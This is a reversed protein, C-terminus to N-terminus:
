AIFDLIYIIQVQFCVMSFALCQVINLKFKVETDKDSNYKEFKDIIKLNIETFRICSLFILESYELFITTM